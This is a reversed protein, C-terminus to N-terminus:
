LMLTDLPKTLVENLAGVQGRGLGLDVMRSASSSPKASFLRTAYVIPDEGAMAGSPVM